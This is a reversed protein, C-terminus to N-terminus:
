GPEKAIVIAMYITFCQVWTALDPIVRRTEMLDAAQVVLIHGDLTKPMGKARGKAPPLETFDMYDGAQIREVWKRPLAPLGEGTAMASSPQAPMDSSRDFQSLLEAVTGATEHEESQQPPFEQLGALSSADPM